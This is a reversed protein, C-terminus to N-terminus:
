RARQSCPAWRSPGVLPGMSSSASHPPVTTSRAGKAGSAKNRRRRQATAAAPAGVVGPVGTRTPDRRTVEAAPIPTAISSSVRSAAANARNTAVSHLSSRTGSSCTFKTSRRRFSSSRRTSAAATAATAGADLAPLRALLPLPPPPPPFLGARCVGAFRAAGISGRSSRSSGVDRRVVSYEAAPV